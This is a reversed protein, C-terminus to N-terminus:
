WFKYLKRVCKHGGPFLSCLAEVANRKAYSKKKEELKLPSIGENTFIINLAEGSVLSYLM